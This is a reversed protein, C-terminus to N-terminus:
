SKVRIIKKFFYYFCHKFVSFTKNLLISTELFLSKQLNYLKENKKIEYFKMVRTLVFM